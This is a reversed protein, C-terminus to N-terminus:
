LERKHKAGAARFRDYYRQYIKVLNANSGADRKKMDIYDLVTGQDVKDVHNLSVAWNRISDDIFPEAQRSVALKLISGNQPVFNVPKCLLTDHYKNWFNQVKAKIVSESDGAEVCSANYVLTQYQYMVSDHKPELEIAQSEVAACFNGVHIQNPCDVRLKNSVRTLNKIVSQDITTQTCDDAAIAPVSMLLSFAFIRSLM